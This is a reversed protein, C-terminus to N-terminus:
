EAAAEVLWMHGDPDTFSGTYGWPQKEPAAVLVGGAAVARAVLADVEDETAAPLSLVCESSGRPAQPREGTVWAFGGSPILMLLAGENLAFRLPEPVGDETPEGVADLGLVARYFAHSTPRDAIPLCFTVPQFSM